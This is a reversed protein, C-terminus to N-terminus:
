MWLPIYIHCSLARDLKNNPKLLDLTSHLDNIVIGLEKNKVTLLDMTSHLSM